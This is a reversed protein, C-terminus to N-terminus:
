STTIGRPFGSASSGRREETVYSLKCGGRPVASIIRSAILPFPSLLLSYPACGSSRPIYILKQLICQINKSIRYQFVYKSRHSESFDQKERRVTNEMSIFTRM